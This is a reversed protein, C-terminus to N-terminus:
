RYGAPLQAVQLDMRWSSAKTRIESTIYRTDTKTNKLILALLLLKFIISFYKFIAAVSFPARPQLYQRYLMGGVSSSAAYFLLHHM